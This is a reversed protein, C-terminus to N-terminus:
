PSREIEQWGVPPESGKKEEPLAFLASIQDSGVEDDLRRNFNAPSHVPATLTWVRYGADHLRRAMGVTEGVVHIWPRARWITEKAGDFIAGADAGGSVIIGALRAVALDDIRDQGSTFGGTELGDLMRRMIAVNALRHIALNQRLCWRQIRRGEYALLHGSPGLKKALPITHPGVGPSVEIVTAGAETHRLLLELHGWLWEGEYELARGIRPEDPDVVLMGSRTEVTVALHRIRPRELARIRHPCSREAIDPNARLGTAGDRWRDAWDRLESAVRDIVPEWRRPEDQRFMRMTPYWPTSEGETLWRYDPPDPLMMWVSKGMAGAIHAPGTDVCVLLDVLSLVAAADELDNLEPGLSIWDCSEPISEAQVTAAGKQISVFRVGPVSLVPALQELSLSRHRDRLHAASGAWALGIVPRDRPGLRTEWTAAFKPDPHLYPINGPITSVTTGFGRPLSMINVYFAFPPLVEGEAVVRGVGQFRQALRQMGRLPQFLVRAGMSELIPLYRAFQVVDGIGQESRVLITQNELSQGTWQPIGYDARQGSLPPVLWRHEFQRWGDVYSGVALLAPGLQVYGRLDPRLPLERELVDVGAAVRGSHCLAIARNAFPQAEDPDDSDPCEEARELLLIAEDYRDLQGLVVALDQLVSRATPATALAARLVAEADEVRDTRVLARALGIEAALPRTASALARRYAAAADGPQGIGLYAAGLGTEALPDDPRLELLRQLAKIADINRGRMSAFLAIARLEREDGNRDFECRDFEELAESLRGWAILIESRACRLANTAGKAIAADVVSLAEPLQHADLFASGRAVADDGASDLASMQPQVSFLHRIRKDRMSKTASNFM